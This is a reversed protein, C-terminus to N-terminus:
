IGEVHSVIPFGTRDHISVAKDFAIGHDDFLEVGEPPFDPDIAGRRAVVGFLGGTAEWIHVAWGPLPIIVASM